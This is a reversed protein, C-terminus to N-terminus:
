IIGMIYNGLPLTINAEILAAIILLLAVIIMLIVSDIIMKFSDTVHKSFIDKKTFGTFTIGALINILGHTLRFASAASLIIATLEFIGHPITFLAFYSTSMHAATYGIMASNYGLLYLSPISLYVGSVFINLAVSFNNIFLPKTKLVITGNNVGQQMKKIAELMISDFFSPYFYSLILLLIFILLSLLVYYKMRNYYKVCNNKINLNM